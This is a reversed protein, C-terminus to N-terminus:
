FKSFHAVHSMNVRSDKNMWQGFGSAQDHAELRVIWKNWGNPESPADCEVTVLVPWDLDNFLHLSKQPFQGDMLMSGPTSHQIDHIPMEYLYVGQDEFVGACGTLLLATTAISKFM